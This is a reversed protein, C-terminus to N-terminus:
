GYAKVKKEQESKNLIFSVFEARGLREVAEKAKKRSTHGAEIVIVVADLLSVLHTTDAVELVPGTDFIVYKYKSRLEGIVQPIRSSSLLGSPIPPVRGAPILSLNEIPTHLTVDELSLKRKLVETLGRTNRTGLLDHLSPNRLDADVICVPGECDHALAVAFNSAVVSKGEGQSASTFALMSSVGQTLSRLVGNFQKFRETLPTDPQHYAIIRKDVPVEDGIILSPEVSAPQSKRAAERKNLAEEIISM